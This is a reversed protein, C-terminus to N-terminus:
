YQLAVDESPPANWVETLDDAAGPCSGIYNLAWDRKNAPQGHTLVQEALLCDNRHKVAGPDAQAALPGAAVLAGVAAGMMLRIISVM